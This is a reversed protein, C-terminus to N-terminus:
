KNGSVGESLVKVALGAGSARLMNADLKAADETLYTPNRQAIWTHDPDNAYMTWIIFKPKPQVVGPKVYNAKDPCADGVTEWGLVRGNDMAQFTCHCKPCSVITSGETADLQVGDCHPCDDLWHM